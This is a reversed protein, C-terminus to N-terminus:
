IKLLKRIIERDDEKLRTHETLLVQQKGGMNLLVRLEGTVRKTKLFACLQDLSVSPNVTTHTTFLDVNAKAYDEDKTM